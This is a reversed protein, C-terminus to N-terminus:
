ANRRAIDDAVKQWHATDHEAYPVNQSAAVRRLAETHAKDKFQEILDDADWFYAVFQNNRLCQPRYPKRIDYQLVDRQKFRAIVTHHLQSDHYPARDLRGFYKFISSKYEDHQMGDALPFLQLVRRDIHLWCAEAENAMWSLAIDSLRSENEPDSGGIDTHNGAFWLQILCERNDRRRNPYNIPPDIAVRQFSARNEDISIAHRAYEVNNLTRDYFKMRLSTFHILWKSLSPLRMM